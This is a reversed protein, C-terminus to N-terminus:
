VLLRNRLEYQQHSFDPSWWNLSRYNIGPWVGEMSSFQLFHKYLPKKDFLDHSSWPFPWVSRSSLPTSFRKIIRIYVQPCSYLSSIAMIFHNGAWRGLCRVWSVEPIFNTCAVKVDRVSSFGHPVQGLHQWSPAMRAVSENENQPKPLGFQLAKANDLIAQFLKSGWQRYRHCIHCHSLVGLIVLDGPGRWICLWIEGLDNRYADPSIM